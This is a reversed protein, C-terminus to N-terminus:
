AKASALETALPLTVKFTSGEGPHSEVWIQGGHHQIIERCITLGLGSGRPKGTLMPGVQMFREFIREADGPAIGIGTDCVSIEAQDGVRTASLTISGSETFKIANNLLNSLVQEIRDRDATVPPIEGDLHMSFAIGHMAILPAYTRQMGQLVTQVDLSAM